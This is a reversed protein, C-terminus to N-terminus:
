PEGISPALADLFQRATLIPIDAHSKLRLLHRDGNVIYDACGALTCELVRNDDPDEKVVDLVLDPDILDAASELRARITSADRPSVGFKVRLKDELEDLLPPSIVLTFARLLGLDLMSGPLGGFM